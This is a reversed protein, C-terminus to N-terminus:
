ATAMASSAELYCTTPCGLLRPRNSNSPTRAALMREPLTPGATDPPAKYVVKWPGCSWPGSTPGRAGGAPAQMPQMRSRSPRNSPPDAVFKRFAPSKQSVANMSLNHRISNQWGKGPQSAKNTNERFWKYIEKLSMCYDPRSLFCDRLLQAYPRDVKPRSPGAVTPIPASTIDM